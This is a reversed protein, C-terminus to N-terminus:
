CTRTQCCTKKKEKKKKKDRDKHSNDIQRLDVCFFFFFFFFFSFLFFFCFILYLCPLSQTVKVRRCYSLLHGLWMVACEVVKGILRCVKGLPPCLKSCDRQRTGGVCSPTHTPSPLPPVDSMSESQQRVGPLLSPWLSRTQPKNVTKARDYLPDSNGVASSVSPCCTYKRESFFFVCVFVWVRTLTVSVRNSFVFSCCFSFLLSLM